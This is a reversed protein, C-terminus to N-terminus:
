RVLELSPYSCTERQASWCFFHKRLASTSRASEFLHIVYCDRTQSTTEHAVIRIGGGCLCLFSQASPGQHGSEHLISKRSLAEFLRETRAEALLSIEEGGARPVSDTM